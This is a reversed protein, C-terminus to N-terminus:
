PEDKQRRRAKLQTHWMDCRRMVEFDLLRCAFIFINHLIMLCIQENSACPFRKHCVKILKNTARSHGDHTVSMIIKRVRKSTM